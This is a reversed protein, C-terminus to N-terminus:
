PRIDELSGTRRARAVGQATSSMSPTPPGSEDSRQSAVPRLVSTKEHMQEGRAMLAPGSLVYATALAFATFQPMAFLF